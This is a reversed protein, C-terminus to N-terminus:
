LAEVRILEKKLLGLEWILHEILALAEGPPNAETVEYTTKTRIGDAADALADISQQLSTSNFNDFRRKAQNMPSRVDRRFNGTLLLADREIVDLLFFVRVFDEESQQYMFTLVEVPSTETAVYDLGATSVIINSVDLGNNRTLDRAPNRCDQTLVTLFGSDDPTQFLPMYGAGATNQLDPNTVEHYCKALQGLPVVLGPFHTKIFALGTPPDVPWEPYLVSLQTGEVGSETEVYGKVHQAISCCGNACYTNEDLVLANDLNLPPEPGDPDDPYSAQVAALVGDALDPHIGVGRQELSDFIDLNEKYKPYWSGTADEAM